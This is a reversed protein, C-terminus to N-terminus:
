LDDSISVPGGEIEADSKNINKNRLEDAREDDVPRYGIIGRVENSSLVENRTFKDAIDAIQDVPVLKFPDRFFKISQGQSRATLSLWKRKMNETLCSLIPEITRNYYNLTTKEDATGNFIAESMGLQNFLMTTLYQVQNFVTNEVARNLQIVRETGDTYAIGYKGNALQNEIDKRRMEAQERRAQSKIVYPLQIILDLKGSGQQEDIADLLTLKRILRQLTSNPENMVAYLPNEVIAVLSKPLIIQRKHGQREDYLEVEVSDPFWTIIKGTRLKIIDYSDTLKPNVTTEVPVLAVCGEDCMSMVADQIFERGTQDINAEVTLANNLRSDVTKKYRGNSDLKVHKIDIAACDIAIRNFISSIISRENGYRLRIRDPRTYNAPGLESWGSATNNGNFANWAHKLRDRLTPM